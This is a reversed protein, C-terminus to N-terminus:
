SKPGTLHVLTLCPQLFDWYPQPHSDQSLAPIESPATGLPLPDLEPWPMKWSKGQLLEQWPGALGTEVLQVGPLLISLVLGLLSEGQVPLLLREILLFM